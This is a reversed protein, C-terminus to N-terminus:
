RSYPSRSNSSEPLHPLADAVVALFLLTKCVQRALRPGSDCPEPMPSSRWHDRIHTATRYNGTRPQTATTRCPEIPKHIIEGGPNRIRFLKWLRRCSHIDGTRLSEIWGAM